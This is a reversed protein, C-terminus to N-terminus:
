PLNEAPDLDLFISDICHASRKDNKAYEKILEIMEMKGFGPHFFADKDVLLVDEGDKDPEGFVQFFLGTAHDLGCIVVQKWNNSNLVVRSM